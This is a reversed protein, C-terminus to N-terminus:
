EVLRMVYVIGDEGGSLVRTGDPTYAVSLVAKTHKELKQIQKGSVVDWVRVSKDAGGSALRKGDASFALSNVAGMHGKLSVAVAAGRAMDRIRILGDDSGCALWNNAPSHALSSIGGKVPGHLAVCQGTALDWVSLYAKANAEYARDAKPALVVSRVPSGVNGEKNEMTLLLKANEVDYFRTRGDSSGSVLRKGDGCLDFYKVGVIHGPLQRIEAGKEVDWQRLTGMECCSFAQKGDASLMVRHIAPHKHGELKKIEELKTLDVIRLTMDGAAVILRKGDASVGISYVPLNPGPQYSQANDDDAMVPLVFAGALAMISGLPVLLARKTRIYRNM